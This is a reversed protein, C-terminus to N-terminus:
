YRGKKLTVIGEALKNKINAKRRPIKRNIDHKVGWWSEKKTCVEIHFFLSRV